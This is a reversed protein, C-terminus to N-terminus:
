KEFEQQFIGYTTRKMGLNAYASQAPRNSREFYLRLGCVSPDDSARAALFQYMRSFVGKRRFNPQVYVSQIWWFLGCRWDSWEYTVMLSGVLQGACEAVLYFGYAPNEFLGRVGATVTQACLQKGETERAMAINFRVITDLDRKDALRVKIPDPM